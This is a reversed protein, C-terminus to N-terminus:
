WTNEDSVASNAWFKGNTADYNWGANGSTPPTLAWTSAQVTTSSNFPNSPVTETLVTGNTQLQALTPYAPAGNVASSAYSNAIASRVNGLVAKCASAKAQSSYDIYKPIAVASLVALVIIVVILEVLTFASAAAIRRRPLVM